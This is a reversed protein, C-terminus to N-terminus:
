AIDGRNCGFSLTVRRRAIVAPVAAGSAAVCVVYAWGAHEAVSVACPVGKM